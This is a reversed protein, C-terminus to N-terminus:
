RKRAGKRKVPVHLLSGEGDGQDETTDDTADPDQPAEAEEVTPALAERWQQRSTQWTRANMAQAFRSAVDEARKRADPGLGQM